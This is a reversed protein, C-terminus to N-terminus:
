YRSELSQENVHEGFSRCGAAFLKLGLLSLLSSFIYERTELKRNRSHFPACSPPPRDLTASTSFLSTAVTRPEIITIIHYICCPRLRHRKERRDGEGERMGTGGEDWRLPSEKCGRIRKKWRHCSDWEEQRTDGREEKRLQKDNEEKERERRKREDREAEGEWREKGEKWDARRKRSSFRRNRKFYAEEREQRFAILRVGERDRKRM